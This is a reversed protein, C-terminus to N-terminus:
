HEGAGDGGDDNGTPWGTFGSFIRTRQPAVEVGHDDSRVVIVTHYRNTGKTKRDSHEPM